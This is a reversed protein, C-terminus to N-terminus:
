FSVRPANRIEPTAEPLLEAITFNFTNAVLNSPFSESKTNYLTVADNFAQRAFAIRNETSSLEEMVQTMARDAKLEPYSESLVMLRSLAGTLMGETNGLQQMAQPDGPNQAARSSANIAFNRAAIVAELTEREHKMYGKATEVLNPILDYRRQLQVDIQSYANKYRNRYKILDNYANIIIVAVIAVLAVSFILLGM